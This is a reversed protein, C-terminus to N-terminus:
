RAAEQTQYNSIETIKDLNEIESVHPPTSQIAFEDSNNSNYTILKTLVSLIKHNTKSRTGVGSILRALVSGVLGDIFKTVSLKKNPDIEPRRESLALLRGDYFYDILSSWSDHWHLIEQYYEDLSEPKTNLKGNKSTLKKDLLDASELAMFVGPSLMPDVFGLADGVLAWGKGHAQQSILQYNSYTKVGSQRQYGMKRLEPNHKIARLLRQESTTGYSKAAESNMVVGVSTMNESLPIQWSWGCKLVSIVVQGPLRSDSKNSTFHAFHAVDNRPGRTADINLIRSFLRSRGTADILLQPQTARTLGAAVLSQDSLQLEKDLESCQEVSAKHNIFTVGLQKARSILSRDFQPRPINYAYDPVQKKFRRFSFDTRTGIEAHRLAAGRKVASYSAIETEIGLRKILPMAAPVLSEGVLLSPKKDDDFVLCDIGRQQLFCALACGSPGAGIIAVQHTM